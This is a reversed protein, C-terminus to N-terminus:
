NTVNTPLTVPKRDGGVFNSPLSRLSLIFSNDAYLSCFDLYPKIRIILVARIM